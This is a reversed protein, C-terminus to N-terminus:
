CVSLYDIVFRNPPDRRYVTLSPCLRDNGIGSSRKLESLPEMPSRSPESPANKAPRALHSNSKALNEHNLERQSGRADVSM